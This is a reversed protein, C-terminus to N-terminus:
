MAVHQTQVIQTLSFDRGPCFWLAAGATTPAADVQGYLRAIGIAKLFFPPLLARRAPEDPLVYNVFPEDHFARGLVNALREDQMATPRIPEILEYLTLVGSRLNQM